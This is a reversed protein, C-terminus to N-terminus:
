QRGAGPRDHPHSQTKCAEAAHLSLSVAVLQQTGRLHNSPYTSHISRAIFRSSIRKNTSRAHKTLQEMHEMHMLPESRVHVTWVVV